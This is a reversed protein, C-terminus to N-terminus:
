VLFGVRHARIMAVIVLGKALEEIVPGVYRSYLRFDLGAVGFVYGNVAYCVGAAVLGSAVVAIVLRLTVLKYSDLYLLAALFGVVPLVGIVVHLAVALM